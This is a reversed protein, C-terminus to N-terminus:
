AGATEARDRLMVAVKRALMGITDKRILWDNILGARQAEHAEEYQEPFILLLVLPRASSPQPLREALHFGTKGTFDEDLSVLILDIPQADLCARADDITQAQVVQHGARELLGARAGRIMSDQEVVLIKAM